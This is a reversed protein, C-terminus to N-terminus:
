GSTLPGTDRTLALLLQRTQEIESADHGGEYLAAVAMGDAARVVVLARQPDLGDAEFAAGWRQKDERMVDAVGPVAALAASLLVYDVGGQEELLADFTVRVYARVLRGPAHDDPAVAGQVARYFGEAQDRAVELLLEDRSGFHHLLGGKSVGAQRAVVDLSVGAGRELVAHAAADLVARRTRATDRERAAV